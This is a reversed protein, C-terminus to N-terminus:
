HLKSHWVYTNQGCDYIPRWGHDIMLQENSTGKGYDTNFLQDYGRQRLLSDTIHATGKTWIKQPHNERLLKFKLKLYVDGTFKSMDCYSLISEPKYSETFHKFLREAGGVVYHESKTCLRLLEWQYNKNYRPKGFTMIQILEENQYLGLNAINGKCKGQIHNTQLFENAKNKDVLKLQMKRAYHRNKNESVIDIIKDWSDWDWINVCKYGQQRAFTTKDKHYKEYEPRYQYNNFHNGIVSHTYTPNIEILYDNIKFDYAYKGICFEETYCINNHKLVEAFEKNIKSIINHNVSRCADALCPYIVGYKRLCTEERRDQAANQSKSRGLYRCRDSCFTTQSFKGNTRRPIQFSKGCYACTKTNQKEYDKKFKDYSCTDCCYGTDFAYSGNKRKTIYFMKGCNKCYNFYRDENINYFYNGKTAYIEYTNDDIKVKNTGGGLKSCMPCYEAHSYNGNALKKMYFMEGCCKCIKTKTKAYEQKRREEAALSCTSSCYKSYYTDAEYKKGCYACKHTIM